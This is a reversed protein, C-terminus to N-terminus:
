ERTKHNWDPGFEDEVTVSDRKVLVKDYPIPSGLEYVLEVQRPIGRKTLYDQFNKGTTEEDSLLDGINLDEGTGFWRDAGEETNNVWDTIGQRFNQFTADKRPDQSYIRVVVCRFPPAVARIHHDGEVFAYIHKHLQNSM